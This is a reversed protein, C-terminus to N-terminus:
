LSLTSPDIAIGPGMTSCVTVKQMYIGKATAPKVKNIDALLANLNENLAEM